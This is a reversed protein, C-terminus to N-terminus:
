MSTTQYVTKCKFTTALQKAAIKKKKRNVIQFYYNNLKHVIEVCAQANSTRLFKYEM